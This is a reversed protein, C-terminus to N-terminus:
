YPINHHSPGHMSGHRGQVASNINGAAQAMASLTKISTDHPAIRSIELLLQEIRGRLLTM